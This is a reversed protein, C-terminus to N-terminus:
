SACRISTWIGVTAPVSRTITVRLGQVAPCATLDQAVELCPTGSEATCMPIITEAGTADIDVAECRAPLTIPEHLCRSTGLLGRIRFALQRLQASLDTCINGVARHPMGELLSAIRAPPFAVEAGLEGDYTCSRGLSVDAGGGSPYLQVEFPSTPGAISAIFVDRSTPKMERLFTAYRGVDTVWPGSENSHCRAKPGPINMQEPDNGGDDCTVGFRTCRFSGLTGLMATNLSLFTSHAFSCDDEDTVLVVALRAAPRLFGANASNTLARQMAALPQELACGQDGVSAMKTFADAVSGTYNTIRGGNGDSVDALYLGTVPADRTQLVGDKGAGACTAVTAGPSPDDAGKAGMDTTVVGLHLNPLKSTLAGGDPPLALADIFAAFSTVLRRQKDLMGSSDDIVFLLDLDLDVTAPILSVETLTSNADQPLVVDIGADYHAM